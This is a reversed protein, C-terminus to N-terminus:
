TRNGAQGTDVGWEEFRKEICQQQQTESPLSACDTFQSGFKLLAGSFLINFLLALAGLVLGTIALGRGAGTGKRVKSLAVIGLVVAVLGLISALFPVWGLLFAIVGLVLAAIATGQSLGRGPGAGYPSGYAGPHGQAPEGYAPQGYQSQAAAHESYSPAGHSPAGASEPYASGGYNEPRSGEPTSGQSWTEGPRAAGQPDNWASSGSDDPNRSGYQDSM